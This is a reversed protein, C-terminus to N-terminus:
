ADDTAGREAHAIATRLQVVACCFDCDGVYEMGSHSDIIDCSLAAKAAEMLEDRQHTVAQLERKLDEAQCILSDTYPDIINSM